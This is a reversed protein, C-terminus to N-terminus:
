VVERTRGTHWVGEHGCTCRFLVDIGDPGNRLRRIHRTTLLVRSHHRDCYVSFM